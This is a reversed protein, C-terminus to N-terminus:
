FAMLVFWCNPDTKEGKTFLWIWQRWEVQFASHLLQKELVYTNLRKEYTKRVLCFLEDSYWRYVRYLLRYIYTHPKFLLSRSLPPSRTRRTPICCTWSLFFFTSTRTTRMVTDWGKFPTYALRGMTLLRTRKLIHIILEINWTNLTIHTKIFSNEMYEFKFSVNQTGLIICLDYVNTFRM